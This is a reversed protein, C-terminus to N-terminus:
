LTLGMFIIMMMLKGIFADDREIKIIVHQEPLGGLYEVFEIMSEYIRGQIDSLNTLNIEFFVFHHVGAKQLIIAACQYLKEFIRGYILIPPSWSNAICKLRFIADFDHRKITALSKRSNFIHIYM